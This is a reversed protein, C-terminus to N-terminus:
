REQGYPGPASLDCKTKRAWGGTKKRSKRYGLSWMAEELIIGTGSAFEELEDLRWWRRSGYRLTSEQATKQDLCGYKVYPPMSDTLFAEPAEDADFRLGDLLLCEFGRQRLRAYIESLRKQQKSFEARYEETNQWLIFPFKEKTKM